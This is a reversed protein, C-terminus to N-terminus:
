GSGEESGQWQQWAKFEDSAPYLRKLALEYSAQEDRNGFRHALRIGLWLGTASQTGIRRAYQQYYDRALRFNKEEFYIRALELSPGPNGSALRAARQYAKKAGKKDEMASRVHGLNYYASGRADYNPDEAARRLQKEAEKLRGQRYLLAGLNNRAPSYDKDAKLAKLLHDEQQEIDGEYGYLLGMANHAVASNDDLKLARSFHRRADAPQGNKLYEMGAAIRNNVARDVDVSTGPGNVPVTVCAAMLVVPLLISLSRFVISDITM